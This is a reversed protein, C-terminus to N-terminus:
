WWLLSALLAGALVLSWPLRGSLRLHDLNGLTQLNVLEKTFFGLREQASFVASPAHPTSSLFSIKNRFWLFLSFNQKDLGEVFLPRKPDLALNKPKLGRLWESEDFSTDM